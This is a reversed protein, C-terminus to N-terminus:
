MRAVKDRNPERPRSARLGTALPGEIGAPEGILLPHPKNSRGISCFRAGRSRTKVELPM